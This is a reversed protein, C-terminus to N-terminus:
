KPGWKVEPSDLLKLLENCSDPNGIKYSSMVGRSARQAVLYDYIVEALRVADEVPPFYRHNLADGRWDSRVLCEFIGQYESGVDPVGSQFPAQLNLSGTKLIFGNADDRVIIQSRGFDFILSV